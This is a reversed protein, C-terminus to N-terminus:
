LEGHVELGWGSILYAHKNESAVLKRQSACKKQIGHDHTHM